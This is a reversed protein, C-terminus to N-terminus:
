RSSLPCEVARVLPRGDFELYCAGRSSCTHRLYTRLLGLHTGCNGRSDITLFDNYNWPLLEDVRNIPHEAIRTLARRPPLAEPDIGNLKATCILRSNRLDSRGIPVQKWDSVIV